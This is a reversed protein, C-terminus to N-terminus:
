VEDEESNQVEDNMFREFSGLEAFDIWVNSLDNPDEHWLKVSDLGKKRLLDMTVINTAPQNYIDRVPHTIGLVNLLWKGLISQPNTQLGKFHDQAFLAEFVKGDPMHLHIPYSSKGKKNKYAKYNRMDVKPDVWRPYKDWVDKPIPIYAEGEPRVTTGNKTKPKGNWANLGSSEPVEKLRYSYLPLYLYDKQQERYAGYNLQEFADKLFAFPDELMKVDMTDLLYTDPLNEGFRMWIQSDAFTYKYEKLGDTFSFSSNTMEIPELHDIDVLPYSTESIRLQGKDRTVYHYINANDKLGLRKYDTRLRENKINSIVYALEDQKDKHNYPEIENKYRKLQMVKQYSPKSNLWTKIGIGVNENGFISKIDHPTNGIDVDESNFSKAYITEQFKSDLYPAGTESSKQNFLSSLASYMRLYQKYEKRQEEIYKEWVTM